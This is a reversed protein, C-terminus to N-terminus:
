TYIPLNQQTLSKKLMFHLDGEEDMNQDMINDMIVPTLSCSWKTTTQPTPCLTEVPQYQYAPQEATADENNKDFIAPWLTGITNM